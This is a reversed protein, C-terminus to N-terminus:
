TLANLASVSGCIFTILSALCAFIAAGIAINGRTMQAAVDYADAGGLAKRQANWAAFQAANYYFFQCFFAGIYAVFVLVLGAAYLAFASKMRAPDVKGGTNGIFTLLAIIAGGNALM